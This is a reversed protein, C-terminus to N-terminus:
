KQPMATSAEPTTVPAVAPAKVEDHKVTDVPVPAVVPKTTDAAMNLKTM